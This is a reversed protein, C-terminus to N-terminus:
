SDEVRAEVKETEDIKPEYGWLTGSHETLYEDDVICHILVKM